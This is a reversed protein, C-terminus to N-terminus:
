PKIETDTESLLDFCVTCDDDVEDCVATPSSSSDDSVAISAAAVPLSDSRPRKRSKVKTFSAIIQEKLLNRLLVFLARQASFVRSRSRSVDTGDTISDVLSNTISSRDIIRTYAYELVTEESVSSGLVERAEAFYKVELQQWSMGQTAWVGYESLHRLGDYLEAAIRGSFVCRERAYLRLAIRDHAAAKAREELTVGRARRSKDMRLIVPLQEKYFKRTQQCSWDGWFSERHGYLSKLKDVTILSDVVLSSEDITASDINVLHSSSTPATVQNQNQYRNQGQSQDQSQFQSEHLNIRSSASLRNSRLVRHPVDSTATMAINLLLLISIAAKFCVATYGRM